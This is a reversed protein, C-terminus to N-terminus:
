NNKSFYKISNKIANNKMILKGHEKLKYNFNKSYPVLTSFELISTYFPKISKSAININEIILYYTNNYNYLVCSKFLGKLSINKDSNIFNCFDCFNEFESFEYIYCPAIHISNKKKITLHKKPNSSTTINCNDIYKTITFVFVDDTQFFAEILLKHGETNFDLEKKAKALVELFFNQSNPNDLLFMQLSVNKEKIDEQKLIVRIKNETLKEIKM